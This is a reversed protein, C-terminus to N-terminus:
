VWVCRPAKEELIPNGQDDLECELCRSLYKGAADYINVSTLYGILLSILVEIDGRQHSKYINGEASGLCGHSTRGSIHPHVTDSGWCGSNFAYISKEQAKFLVDHEVRLVIEWSGIPFRRLIGTDSTSIFLQNTKISMEGTGRISISKIHKKKVVKQLSAKLRAIEEALSDETLTIGRKNLTYRAYEILGEDSIFLKRVGGAM